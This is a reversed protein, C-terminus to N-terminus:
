TQCQRYYDTNCGSYNCCVLLVYKSVRFILLHLWQLLLLHLLLIQLLQLLQIQLIQRVRNRRYYLYFLICTASVPGYPTNGDYVREYIYFLVRVLLHFLVDSPIKKRLKQFRIIILILCVHIIM